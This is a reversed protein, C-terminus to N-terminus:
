GSNLSYKVFGNFTGTATICLCTSDSDACIMPDERFDWTQSNSGVSVDGSLRFFPAVAGSGDLVGVNGGTACNLVVYEIHFLQTGNTIDKGVLLQTDAASDAEEFIVWRKGSVFTGTTIDIAM